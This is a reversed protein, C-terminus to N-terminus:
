AKPKHLLPDLARTLNEGAPYWSIPYTRSGLLTIVSINNFCCLIRLDSWVRVLLKPSLNFHLICKCACWTFMISFLGNLAFSIFVKQNELDSTLVAIFEFSISKVFLGIFMNQDLKVWIINSNILDFTLTWTSSHIRTLGQEFTVWSSLIFGISKWHCSPM